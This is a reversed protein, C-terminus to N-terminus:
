EQGAQHFATALSGRTLLKRKLVMESAEQLSEVADIRRLFHDLIAFTLATLSVM